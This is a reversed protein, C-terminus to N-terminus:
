VPADVQADPVTVPKVNINRNGFKEGGAYPPLDLWARGENPNLTESAILSNVATAREVLSARTLDDREFKIRYTKREDDNFLARRMCGELAHLWPEMTYTLFEKGGQEANKWTARGLEYLMQPPVRFARAVEMNQYTRNELFQADTSSLTLANFTAEDWLIPTKGANDAGEFAGKWAARMKQLGTDGLGKKMGIWGSPRSGNKFLNKAHTELLTAVTIASIAMSLPSRGFPSRLHIVDASDIEVGALRYVPEGTDWRYQVSLRGVPLLIIERVEGGVRNIWALGGQDDTLARIVLDRIFEFTSTWPNPADALLQAIPHTREPTETGDDAVKVVNLDLTAAAESIARLAASTAPLALAEGRSCDGISTAGFLSLLWPTPDTITSTDDSKTRWFRM